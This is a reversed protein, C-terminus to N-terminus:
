SRLAHPFMKICQCLHGTWRSIKLGHLLEKEVETLLNAYLGEHVICTVDDHALGSSRAEFTALARM